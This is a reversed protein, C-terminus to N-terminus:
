ETLIDQFMKDVNHYVKYEEPHKEIYNLEKLSEIYENTSQQKINFSLEKKSITKELITNISNITNKYKKYLKIM